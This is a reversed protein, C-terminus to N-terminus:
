EYTISNKKINLNKNLYINEGYNEIALKGFYTVNTYVIFSM